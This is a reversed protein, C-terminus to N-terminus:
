VQLGSVMDAIIGLAYGSANQLAAREKSHFASVVGPLHSGLPSLSLVTTLIQISRFCNTHKRSAWEGSHADLFLNSLVQRTVDVVDYEYSEVGQLV